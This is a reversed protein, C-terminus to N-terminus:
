GSRRLREVHRENLERRLRLIQVAVRLDDLSLKSFEAFADRGLPEWIRSARKAFDPTLEVLVRRRDSEDRVRRAYGARELRDLVTTVAATTLGSLEALRGATLPGENDIIDLCRGDTPNVGLQRLAENDFAEHAADSARAEYILQQILEQKSDRSV